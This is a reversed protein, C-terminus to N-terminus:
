LVFRSKKSLIAIGQRFINGTSEYRGILTSHVLRHCQRVHRPQGEQFLHPKFGFKLGEMRAM